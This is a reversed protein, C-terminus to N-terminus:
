WHPDNHAVVKCCTLHFTVMHLIRSLDSLPVNWLTWEDHSIPGMKTAMVALLGLFWHRRVFNSVACRLLCATLSLLSLFFIFSASIHLACVSMLMGCFTICKSKSFTSDVIYFFSLICCLSVSNLLLSGLYPFVPLCHKAVFVWPWPEWSPVLAIVM